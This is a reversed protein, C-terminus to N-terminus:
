AFVEVDDVTLQPQKDIDLSSVGLEHFYGYVTKTQTDGNEDIYEETTNPYEAQLKDIRLRINPNMYMEQPLDNEEIKILVFHRADSWKQTDFLKADAIQWQPILRNKSRMFPVSKLAMM